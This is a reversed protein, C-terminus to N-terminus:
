MSPEEAWPVESQTSLSKAMTEHYSAVTVGAVRAITSGHLAVARERQHAM